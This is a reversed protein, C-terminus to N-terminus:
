TSIISAQNDELNLFGDSQLIIPVSSGLTLLAYRDKAALVAAALEPGSMTTAAPADGTAAPEAEQSEFVGADAQAHDIRDSLVRVRARSAKKIIQILPVDDESDDDESSSSSDSHSENGQNLQGLPVDDDSSSM